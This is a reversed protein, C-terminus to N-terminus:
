VTNETIGSPKQIEGNLVVRKKHATKKYIATDELSGSLSHNYFLISYTM